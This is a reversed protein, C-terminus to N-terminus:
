ESQYPINQQTKWGMTVIFIEIRLITKQWAPQNNLPNKEGIMMMQSNSVAKIGKVAPIVTLPAVAM